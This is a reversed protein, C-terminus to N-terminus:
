PEFTLHHGLTGTLGVFMERTDFRWRENVRHFTDHYRGTIIAQLPLGDSAQFVTYYSRAEATAQDDAVTVAVNTTVHHTRPTGDPHIRVAAEYMVRVQESGEYVVGPAAQIRGDSFLAAVGDLDGLDFREAYAYILNEIERESNGM